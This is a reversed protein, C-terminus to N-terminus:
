AKINKNRSALKEAVQDESLPLYYIRPLTTTKRFLDDLTVIPPDLKEPLPPPAPLARAPPPVSLQSPPPYSAPPPAQQQRQLQQRPSPTPQKTPAAAQPPPATVPAAPTPAPAELRNKVEQPDVFDAVLLRGGNTPWQLNYVANRTEIAEEVSSYTVYCHTKIHDMWFSTVKGTKGLLEQVAKLTFPRLFRDIKLSNTPPVASPPVVREKPTDESNTSDSRLFNRKGAAPSISEKPTTSVATATIQPETLAVKVSDTNWRRQRKVPESAGTSPQDPLKRKEAAVIGKDEVHSDVKGENVVDVIIEDKIEVEAQENKDEYVDSINKMDVQKNDFVDEDMSDDGSSRDLNLKEPYEVDTSSKDVGSASGDKEDAFIKKQLPDEVDMPHSGGADPAVNMSSPKVMEPEVNLELKVNDAIINDKLENKEIISVSDSSISDSKVELGLARSVESVQNAPVPANNKDDEQAFTPIHVEAVVTEVIVADQGKSGSGQANFGEIDVQIPKETDEQLKASESELQFEPKETVPEEIGIESKSGENEFQSKLEDNGTKSKVSANGIDQVSLPTESIVTETVTEVTTKRVIIVEGESAKGGAVDSAEVNLEDTAPQYDVADVKVWDDESKEVKSDDAKQPTEFDKDSQDLDDGPIEVNGGTDQGQADDAGNLSAEAEATASERETRVAEDLRKVLDAKLGAASLRRKRLEEKLETVKWQDVPKDKLVQYPSSSTKKPTSSM